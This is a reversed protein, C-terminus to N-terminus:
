AEPMGRQGSLYRDDPDSGSLGEIEATLRPIARELHRRYVVGFIGGLLSTLGGTSDVTFRIRTAGPVVPEFVHDYHITAGLFTGVWKWSRSRHFEVMQFTTRLGNSLKFTGRSAPGLPGSPEVAAHRIHRAWSPWEEVRSLHEWASALPARVTFERDVIRKM